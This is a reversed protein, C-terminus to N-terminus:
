AVLDFVFVCAILSVTQSRWNRGVRTKEKSPPLMYCKPITVTILDWRPDIYPINWWSCWGVLWGVLFSLFFSLFLCVFLCCCPYFELCLFCKKKKKKKKANVVSFNENSIKPTIGHGGSLRNVSPHSSLKSTSVLNILKSLHHSILGLVDWFAKDFITENLWACAEAISFMFCHQFCWRIQNNKNMLTTIQEAWRSVMAASMAGFVGVMGSSPPRAGFPFSRIGVMWKWTRNALKLSTEIEDGSYSELHIEKRLVYRTPCCCVERRSFDMAEFSAIKGLVHDFGLEKKIGKLHWIQMRRQSHVHNGFRWHSCHVAACQCHECGQPKKFKRSGYAVAGLPRVM